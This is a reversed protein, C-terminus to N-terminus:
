HQCEREIYTVSREIHKCQQQQLIGSLAAIFISEAHCVEFSRPKNILEHARMWSLCTFVICLLVHLRHKMFVDHMCAETCVCM